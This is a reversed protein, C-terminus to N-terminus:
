LLRGRRGALVLECLGSLADAVKEVATRALADDYTVVRVGERHVVAVALVDGWVGHADDDASVSAARDLSEHLDAIAM